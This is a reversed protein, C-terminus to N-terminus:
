QIAVVAGANPFFMIFIMLSFIAAALQTALLAVIQWGTLSVILRGINIAIYLVLVSLSVMLFDNMLHLLMLTLTLLSLFFNMWNYTVIYPVLGDARGFQRLILAAFTLQLAFQILALLISQWAPVMQESPELLFPLYGNIMLAIFFAALSGALGALGLDFFRHADRRGIIIAVIGRGAQVAEEIFTM